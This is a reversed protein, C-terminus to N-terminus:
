QVTLRKLQWVSRAFYFDTQLGAFREYMRASIVKRLIYLKREFAEEDEINKGRGIFVQRHRPETIAIEPAQSLGSNDVPVDRWGIM